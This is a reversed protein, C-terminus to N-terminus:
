VSCVGATVMSSPMLLTPPGMNGSFPLLTMHSSNQSFPLGMSSTKASASSIKLLGQGGRVLLVGMQLGVTGNGVILIPLEYEVCRGLARKVDALGNGTQQVNGIIVNDDALTGGAAGEAALLMERIHKAACQENRFVLDALGDLHNKVPLLVGLEAHLAMGGFADVLGSHFVALDDASLAMDVIVATRIQGRGEHHQLPAHEVGVTHIGNRVGIELALADAGVGEGGAGETAEACRLSQEAELSMQGVQGVM